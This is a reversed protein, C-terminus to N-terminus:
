DANAANSVTTFRSPDYLTRQQLMAVL